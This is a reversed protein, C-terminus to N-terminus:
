SKSHALGLGLGQLAGVSRRGRALRQAKGAGNEQGGGARGNWGLWCASPMSSANKSVGLLPLPTYATSRGRERASNGGGGGEGEEKDVDGNKERSSFFPHSDPNVKERKKSQEWGKVNATSPPPM